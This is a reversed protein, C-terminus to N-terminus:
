KASLWVDFAENQIHIWEVDNLDIPSDFLLMVNYTCQGAEDGDSRSSGSGVAAQSVIQNDKLVVSTHCLLENIMVDSDIGDEEDITGEFYLSLPSITMKDVPIGEMQMLAMDMPLEQSGSENKLTFATLVQGSDYDKAVSLQIVDGQEFIVDDLHVLYNGTMTGGEQIEPELYLYKKLQYETKDSTYFNLGSLENNLLTQYLKTDQIDTGATISEDEMTVTFTFSVFMYCEDYLVTDLKLVGHELVIENNLAGGYQEYISKRKDTSGQKSKVFNKMASSISDVVAFDSAALVTMGSLVLIGVCVAACIPFQVRKGAKRKKSGAEMRQCIRNKQDENLRIQDYMSKYLEQEM